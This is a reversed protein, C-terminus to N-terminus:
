PEGWLGFRRGRELAANETAQTKALAAPDAPLTARLADGQAPSLGLVGAIIRAFRDKEKPPFWSFAYRLGPLAILFDDDPYGAIVQDLLTPLTEVRSLEERALAFLGSLFDGFEGPLSAARIAALTEPEQVPGWAGTSWLFGLSGGKQAAPAAPNGAIREFTPVAADRNELASPAYRFVDRMAILANIEPGGCIGGAATGESLWLGRDFGLSLAEAVATSGRNGLLDDYRYVELLAKLGAGLDALSSEAQVLPILQPLLEDALGSLGVWMAEGLVKVLQSFGTGEGVLGQLRGAAASYPDPGYISAEILRTLREPHDAVTWVETRAGETAWSPGKSRQFGPIELVRLAHLLQSRPRDQPLTLKLESPGLAIKAQRLAEETAEVIPPQPTRPDLRGETDGCFAGLIAVLTPDTRPRLPGRYTWPLPADLADKVLAAALGDLLDRRLRVPHGRMRRLAEASAAAAIADAPSVQQKKSRLAVIASMLLQDGAAEAGLDFVAQQYAPSPMGSAYGTLSDLRHFRYPILYSGRHLDPSPLTPFPPTGEPVIGELVPAHFGGCIVVVSKGQGLAWKVAETMFAERDVDEGDAPTDGRTERFFEQLTRELKTPAQPIEFLQDWLSDMDELGLRTLLAKIALNWRDRGKPPPAADLDETDTDRDTELPVIEPDREVGPNEDGSAGGEDGDGDLGPAGGDLGADLRAADLAKTWRVWSPLDFFRVDSGLERAVKLGVWEPSFECLPFWSARRQEGSLFSFVALPLRHDLHFEGLRENMDAPGEILVIEPRETRLVHEVLRACAPSHHRVGIVHLSPPM